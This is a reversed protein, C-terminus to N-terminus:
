RRKKKKRTKMNKKQKKKGREQTIDSITNNSYLSPYPHPQWTAGIIFYANIISSPSLLFSLMGVSLIIQHQNHYDGDLVQAQGHGAPPQSLLMCPLQELLDRRAEGRLSEDSDPIGRSKRNRVQM